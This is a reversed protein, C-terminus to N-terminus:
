GIRVILDVGVTLLPQAFLASDMLPLDGSLRVRVALPLDDVPCTVEVSVFGLIFCEGEDVAVLPQESQVCRVSM